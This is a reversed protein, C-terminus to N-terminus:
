YKSRIRDHIIRDKSVYADFLEDPTVGMIILLSIFYNFSDVMEEKFASRDFEKIETQRHSKANKLEQVAEFVEEVGRLALDRLHQQTQKDTLDIPMEPYVDPVHAQLARMFSQRLEFMQDLKDKL